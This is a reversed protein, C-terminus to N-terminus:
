KLLDLLVTITLDAERMISKLVKSHLIEGAHFPISTRLCARNKYIRHEWKAQFSVPDNSFKSSRLATVRARVALDFLTCSVAEPQSFKRARKM